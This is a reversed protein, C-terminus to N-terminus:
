VLSEVLSKYKDSVRYKRTWKQVKEEGYEMREMQSVLVGTDDLSVLRSLITVRSIGVLKKALENLYAGEEGKDSIYRLVMRAYKDAKIKDGVGMDEM